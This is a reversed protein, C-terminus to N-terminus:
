AGCSRESAAVVSSIPISVELWMCDDHTQIRADKLGAPLLVTDGVGFGVPSALSDCVISGRGQLVIWIVFEAYQIPQEVGEIMRVREIIFSESKVLRTVATWVTGFHEPTEGAIPATDYSICQLAEEL